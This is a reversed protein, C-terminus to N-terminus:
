IFEDIERRIMCSFYAGFAHSNARQVEADSQPVIHAFCSGGLCRTALNLIAAHIAGFGSNVSLQSAFVNNSMGPIFTPCEVLESKPVAPLVNAGLTVILHIEELLSLPVYDTDNKLLIAITPGHSSLFDLAQLKRESVLNCDDFSFLNFRIASLPMNTVSPPWCEM